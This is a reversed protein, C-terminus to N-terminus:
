VDATKCVRRVDELTTAPHDNFQVIGGTYAREPFLLRIAERVRDFEDRCGYHAFLLELLCMQSADRWRGAGYWRDATLTESLKTM